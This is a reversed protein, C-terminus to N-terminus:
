VNATQIVDDFAVQDRERVAQRGTFDQWRKIIVDCYRADLEMLFSRCGLKESAIMTTGSGGFPEIINAGHPAFNKIGEEVLAVPFCASHQEHNANINSIKWLNKLCDNRNKNIKFKGSCLVFVFEYIRTLNDGHLSVAMSKEWVITEVLPIIKKIKALIDIYTDPSNKNYNINYCCIFDSKKVANLSAIIKENFLIYDESNLNDDYGNCYLGGERKIKEKSLGIGSLAANYPPSTFCFDAKKGAMLAQISETDTSDGCMLRHDGLLWIDGPETKPNNEVDPVADADTLGENVSLSLLGDLEEDSFGTLSLDFDNDLLESLESKLLDDDWGANLALKNDAIVYAKKQNETLGELVIVPVKTFNLAKAADLRGHGAIIQHHEDILIPNTFGFETISAQIQALQEDSHTRANKPYPKLTNISINKYSPFKM